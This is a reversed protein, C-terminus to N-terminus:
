LSVSIGGNIIRRENEILMDVLTNRLTSTLMDKIGINLEVPPIWTHKYIELYNSNVWRLIVLDGIEGKTSKDRSSYYTALEDERYGKVKANSINTSISLEDMDGIERKSVLLYALPLVNYARLIGYGVAILNLINNLRLYKLADPHLLTKFLPAIINLHTHTIDGPGFRSAMRMGTAIDDPNLIQNVHKMQAVIKDVTDTAWNFEESIGPPVETAIRYSEVVSEQEDSKDESDSPRSKNRIAEAPGGSNKIKSNIDRYISKVIDSDTPDALQNLTIIKGFISRALFSEKISELSLRTSLIKVDAIKEKDFTRDVIAYVYAKLKQFSEHKFIEQLKLIDLMQLEKHEKLHDPNGSILESIPGYVAKLIVILAMLNTYDPIIYTQNRTGLGDTEVSMNFTPQLSPPIRIPEVETVFKHIEEIDLLSIVNGLQIYFKGRIADSSEANARLYNTTISSLLEFSKYLEEIYEDGRYNVYENLVNFCSASDKAIKNNLLTDFQVSDGPGNLAIPDSVGAAEMAQKSARTVKVLAQDESAILAFM